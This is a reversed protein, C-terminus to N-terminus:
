GVRSMTMELMASDKPQSPERAILENLCAIAENMDSYTLTYCDSADVLKSLAEFGDTGLISFNFADQAVRLLTTAKSYPELALSAGAKWSPFVILRAKANVQGKAVSEADVQIHAVTGKRTGPTLPGMVVTPEFAQIVGISGEKLGIPRPVPILDIGPTRMVCVEDSLLRWGRLSLGACLTSKGAGPVGPLIVAHGGREVVASHLILYQHPRTFVCWNVAWEFMPLALAREFSPFTAEGDIIFSVKNSFWKEKKSRPAVAVEFDIFGDAPELPYHAYLLKIPEVLEPLVTRMGFIFPGMRARVGAKGRLLAALDTTSLDRILM